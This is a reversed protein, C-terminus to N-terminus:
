PNCKIVVFISDSHFIRPYFSSITIIITMYSELTIHFQESLPLFVPIFNLSPSSQKMENLKKLSFEDWFLTSIRARTRHFFIRQSVRYYFIYLM